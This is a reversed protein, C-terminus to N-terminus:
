FETIRITRAGYKERFQTNLRLVEAEDGVFSCRLCYYEAKEADYLMDMDIERM